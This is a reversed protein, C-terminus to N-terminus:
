YLRTHLGKYPTRGETLRNDNNTLCQLQFNTCASLLQFLVTFHLIVFKITEQPSSMEAGLCTTVLAL